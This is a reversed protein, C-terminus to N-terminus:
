NDSKSTPTRSSMIQLAKGFELSIADPITPVFNQMTTTKNQNLNANYEPSVLSNLTVQNDQSQDTSTNATVSIMSLSSDDITLESNGMIYKEEVNQAISIKNSDDQVPVLTDSIIAETEEGENSVFNDMLAVVRDGERSHMSTSIEKDFIKEDDLTLTNASASDKPDSLSDQVVDVDKSRRREHEEDSESSSEIKNLSVTNDDNLVLIESHDTQIMNVNRKANRLMIIGLRLCLFSAMREITENSFNEENNKSVHLLTSKMPVLMVSTRKMQFYAATRPLRALAIFPIPRSTYQLMFADYALSFVMKLQMVFFIRRFRLLMIKVEM